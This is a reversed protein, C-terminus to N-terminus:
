MQTKQNKFGELGENLLKRSQLDTQRPTGMGLWGSTRFANAKGMRPHM